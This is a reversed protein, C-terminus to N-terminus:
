SVLSSNFKNWKKIFITGLIGVIIFYSIIIVETTVFSGLFPIIKVVKGTVADKSVTTNVTTTLEDERLTDVKGVIVRNDGEVNYFVIDEEKLDKFQIESNKFIIDYQYADPELFNNALVYMNNTDIGPTPSIFLILTVFTLPNIALGLSGLLLCRKGLKPNIQILKLYAILGGLIGFVIPLLFWRSSNKIINKEINTESNLKNILNIPSATYNIQKDQIGQQKLHLKFKNILHHQETQFLLSTVLHGGIIVMLLSVLSMIDYSMSLNVFINFLIAASTFSWIILRFSNSCSSITQKSKLFVKVNSLDLIMIPYLIITTIPLMFLGVQLVFLSEIIEIEFQPSISALFQVYPNLDVFTILITALSTSLLISGILSSTFHSYSPANDHNAIFFHETSIKKTDFVLHTISFKQLKFFLKTFFLTSTGFISWSLVGIFVFLFFIIINTSVFSSTYSTPNDVIIM